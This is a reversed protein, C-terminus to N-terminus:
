RELLAVGVDFHDHDIVLVRADGRRENWADLAQEMQLRLATKGAGREGFVVTPAPHGAEGLIKAFDPHKWGSTARALVADQVADEAVFPNMVLGHHQLFEEANM